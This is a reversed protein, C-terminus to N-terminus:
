AKAHNKIAQTIQFPFTGAVWARGTSDERLIFRITHEGISLPQIQKPFLKIQQVTIRGAAGARVEYWDSYPQSDIQYAVRCPALGNLPLYWTPPDSLHHIPWIRDPNSPDTLVGLHSTGTPYRQVPGIPLASLEFGDFAAAELTHVGPASLSRSVVDAPLVAQGSVTPLTSWAVDDDIRYLLTLADGDEDSV